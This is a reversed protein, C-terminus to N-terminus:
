FKAFSEAVTLMRAYSHLAASENCDPTERFRSPGIPGNKARREQKERRKKAAHEKLRRRAADM